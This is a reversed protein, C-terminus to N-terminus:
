CGLVNPLETNQLLSIKYFSKSSIDLQLLVLNSLILITESTSCYHLSRVSSISIVVSETELNYRTPKFSYLLLAITPPIIIFTSTPLLGVRLSVTVTGGQVGFIGRVEYLQRSINIASLPASPM